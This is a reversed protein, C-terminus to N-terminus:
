KSRRSLDDLVVNSYVREVDFGAAPSFIDMQPAKNVEFVLPGRETRVLDVGAVRLEAKEAAGICISEEEASIPIKEPKGGQSVNNYFGDSSSRKIAAIIKGDFVFVRIDHDNPIYEQILTLESDQKIHTELSAKDEVKWVNKGKSGTKKVVVPFQLRQEIYTKNKEYSHPTVILTNPVKIGNLPLSVMMTIKDATKDSVLNAGDIFIPVKEQLIRGILYTRYTDKNTRKILYATDNTPLPANDHIV